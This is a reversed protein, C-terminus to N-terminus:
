PYGTYFATVLESSNAVNETNYWTLDPPYSVWAVKYQLRKNKGYLRSDLIREVKFEEKDEIIM